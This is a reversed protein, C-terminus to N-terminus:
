AAVAVTSKILAARLVDPDREGTLINRAIALRNRSTRLNPPLSQVVQDLIQGLRSLEEPYYVAGENSLVQMVGRTVKASDRLIKNIRKNRNPCFPSRRADDPPLLHVSAGQQRDAFCDPM